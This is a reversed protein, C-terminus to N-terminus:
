DLVDVVIVESSDKSCYIWRWNRGPIIELYGVIITDTLTEPAFEGSAGHDRNATLSATRTLDYSRQNLVRRMEEPCTKARLSMGVDLKPIIQDRHRTVSVCNGVPKGFLAEYIAIGSRPELAETARTYAGIAVRYAAMVACGAGIMLFVLAIWFPRMKRYRIAVLALVLTILGCGVAALLWGMFGLAPLM